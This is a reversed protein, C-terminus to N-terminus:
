SSLGLLLRTLGDITFLSLVPTDPQAPVLGALQGLWVLVIVVVAGKVLGLALGAGTNVTSLIPLHFALDLAHSVLFWILQIALFTVAFLAARAIGKALYDALADLPSLFGSNQLINSALGEELFASFGQFLENDRMAALLDNLTYTAQQLGSEATPVPPVPAVNQLTQVIVPRIINAVPEYFLNALFQAGFFAVGAALLGFLSLILGKKAGRWAFFALLGLILVDFLFAM